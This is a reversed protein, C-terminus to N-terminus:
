KEKKDLLTKIEDMIPLMEAIIKLSENICEFQAYFDDVSIEKPKVPDM